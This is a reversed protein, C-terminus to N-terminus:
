PRELRPEKMDETILHAKKLKCSKMHLNNKIIRQVSRRSIKTEKGLKRTSWRPNRQLRSKIKQRNAAINVNKKRGRGRRDEHSNTEQFRKIDRRVMSEPVKLLRSIARRKMGEQFLRFVASRLEKM